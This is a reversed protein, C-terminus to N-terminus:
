NRGSKICRNQIKNRSAHRPLHTLGFYAVYRKSLPLDQSKLFSRLLMRRLETKVYAQRRFKDLLKWQHHRTM